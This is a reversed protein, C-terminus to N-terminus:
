LRKGDAIGCFRELHRGVAGQEQADVVVVQRVVAPVKHHLDPLRSSMLSRPLRSGPERTATFYLEGQIDSQFSVRLRGRVPKGIFAFRGVLSGSVSALHVAM